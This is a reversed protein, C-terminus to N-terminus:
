NATVTFTTDACPWGFVVGNENQFKFAGKPVEIEYSKGEEIAWMGPGEYRGDLCWFHWGTEADYYYTGTATDLSDPVLRVFREGDTITVTAAPIDGEALDFCKDLKLVLWGCERDGGCPGCSSWLDLEPADGELNINVKYETKCCHTVTACSPCGVYQDPFVTFSVTAITKGFMATCVVDSADVTAVTTADVITGHDWTGSPDSPTLIFWNKAENSLKVTYTTTACLLGQQEGETLPTATVTIVFSAPLTCADLDIDVTEEGPMVTISTIVEDDEDKLTVEFGPVACLKFPGKVATGDETCIEVKWWFVGCQNLSTAYETELPCCLNKPVQEFYWTGPEDCDGWSYYFRFWAANKAEEWTSWDFTVVTGALVKAGDAPSPEFAPPTTPTPEPTEGGGSPPQTGVCGVLALSLVVAITVIVLLYRRM